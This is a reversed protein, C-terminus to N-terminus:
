ILDKARRLTAVIVVEAQRFSHILMSIYSYVQLRQTNKILGGM